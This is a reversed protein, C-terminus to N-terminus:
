MPVLFPVIAVVYLRLNDFVTSKGHFSDSLSAVDYTNPDLLFMRKSNTLQFLTSLSYRAAVPRNSQQFAIQLPFELVELVACKQEEADPNYTQGINAVCAMLQLRYTGSYDQMSYVSTAKWIQMPTSFTPQTWILDLDFKSDVSKPSLLKTSQDPQSTYHSTVFLGLFYRHFFPKACLVRM